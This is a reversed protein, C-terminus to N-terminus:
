QGKTTEAIRDAIRTMHGVQRHLYVTETMRISNGALGAVDAVSEGGQVANTIWTHRLKYLHMREDGVKNELKEAEIAALRLEKVRRSLSSSNWPMGAKREAATQKVGVVHSRHTFISEPHRDKDARLSEMLDALEQSMIIVRSRGTKRGTKHELPPLVITRGEHSFHAWRTKCLEGPRCGTGAAVRILIATMRAFRAAAGKQADAWAQVFGVFADVESSPAYRGEAAQVKPLEMKAVPNADILREVSRDSRPQASWNLVAQLSALRNRVTTASKGEWARKLADVDAAKLDRAVKKGFPLGGVAVGVVQKLQKRHGHFTLGAMKDEQVQNDAWSLYALRLDDVTYDGGTVQREEIAELSAEMWERARAKDTHRIGSRDYVTQRKGGPVTITFCWRGTQHWTPRRRRAM